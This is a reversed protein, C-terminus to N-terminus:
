VDFGDTIVGNITGLEHIAGSQVKSVIENLIRKIELFSGPKSVFASAKLKQALKIDQPHKSTSYMIVPIDWLKPDRKIHILCEWGNMVPMNIDTFILAPKPRTHLLHFAENGDNAAYCVISDDINALAELFLEVDEHDDDILM